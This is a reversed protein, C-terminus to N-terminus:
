IGGEYWKKLMSIVQKPQEVKLLKNQLQKDDILANILKFIEHMKEKVEDNLGIFCVFKVESKNWSIPKKSILFVLVPKKILKPNVHPLAFDEMATSALKEREDVAKLVKKSDQIYDNNALKQTIDQMVQRYDESQSNILVFNSRLLEFFPNKPQTDRKIRKIESQIAKIDAQELLPGVSIVPKELNSIPITSIVLDETLKSNFLDAVTTIRVVQLSRNFKTELRQALLQSTGIGSSCVVVVRLRHDSLHREYFSELHLAIFALEDDNLVIQYKKQLGAQLEVAADFAEPLNRRIEQTYPNYINLGIKLRKITSELHLSLGELLEKDPDISALNEQLFDSINKFASDNNQQASQDKVDELSIKKHMAAVIHLNLYKQEVMPIHHQYRRELITVLLKTESLLKMPSKFEDERSENIPSDDIRELAIMLHIALSQFEYDSFMLHSKEIFETLTNMVLSIIPKSFLQQLKPPLNITRVLQGNEHEAYIEQGWYRSILEAIAQRRQEETASISIGQHSIAIGIGLSNLKKRVTIFDNEVTSRSVFMEDALGQLTYPNSNLLLKFLIYRQRGGKSQSNNVLDLNLSNRLRDLDGSFYIGDNPRRILQVNLGKLMPEIQDLVSAITRQSLNMHMAINGYHTKEQLLIYRIIETERENM